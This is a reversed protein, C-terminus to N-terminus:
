SPLAGPSLAAVDGSEPRGAVDETAASPSSSMSERGRLVRATPRVVAHDRGRRVRKSSGVGILDREYLWGRIPRYLSRGLETLDPNADLHADLVRLDVLARDLVGPHREDWRGRRLLFFFAIINAAAHFAVLIMELPCDRGVFPSYYRRTCHPDVLTGFRNAFFYHQRAGEAVLSQALRIAGAGPSYSVAGPASPASGSAVPIPVPMLYRVMAAIWPLYEASAARLYRRAEQFESAVVAAPAAAGADDLSAFGSGRRDRLVALEGLDDFGGVAKSPPRLSVVSRPSAGLGLTATTSRTSVVLDPPKWFIRVSSSPDLLVPDVRVRAPADLEISCAFPRASEVFDLALNVAAVLKASGDGASADLAAGVSPTWTPRGIRPAMAIDSLVRSLAVHDRSPSTRLGEALTEAARRVLEQSGNSRVRAEDPWFPGSCFAFGNAPGQAEVRRREGAAARRAGRAVITDPRARLEATPRM